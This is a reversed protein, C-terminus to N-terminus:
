VHAPERRNSMWTALSQETTLLGKRGTEIAAEVAALPQPPRGGPARGCARAPDLGFLIHEYSQASFLRLPYPFDFNSPSKHEWLDLLASIRETRREPATADRWFPTDRRASLVYHLNVFDLVEDYLVGMSQNFASALATQGSPQGLSPLLTTLLGAAAEVLYIATSELPEIFGGAMGIALVNKEWFVERRGVCFRLHRAEVNQSASGLAGRLEAEAEDATLHASSYVYGNGTRDQLPIDWRWGSSMAVSRTYARLGDDGSQRPIRLAVARDCLLHDSFSQLDVGMVDGILAGRSGTCDIFLDASVAAENELELAEIRGDSSRRAGTVKAEVHNVDEGAFRSKLLDGFAEADMHFAYPLPSRYDASKGPPKPSLGMRCFHAQPSIYSAWEISRDSDLWNQVHRDPAGVQRRDFPHFFKDAGDRWGEFAIAQKWTAKTASIFEAEPIGLISLSSCISPVTAEGVGIRAIQPAEILTIDLASKSNARGLTALYGAVLWGSSGGGVVVIRLPLTETQTDREGPM